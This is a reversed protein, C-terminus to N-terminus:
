LGGRQQIIEDLNYVINTVEIGLLKQLDERQEPKFVIIVRETQTQGSGSIKDLPTPNLDVGALEPPLNEPSAAPAQGPVVPQGDVYATPTYEAPPTAGADWDLTSFGLKGMDFDFGSIEGLEAQLADFDWASLEQSRNHALTYARREEDTLRDLRICPVPESWGMAKLALYRGHGEVIINKKGWVGIPDNMGFKEISERIVALDADGHKRANKAYPTLKGLPILEFKIPPQSKKAM